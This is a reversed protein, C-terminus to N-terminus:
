RREPQDDIRLPARPTWVDRQRGNRPSARHISAEGPLRRGADYSRGARATEATRPISPGAERHAARGSLIAVVAAVVLAAAVLVRPNLSEGGLSWGLFVAVVPNVFAYTSVAALSRRRILWAYAGFAIVSGFGILYGLAALSGPSIADVRLDRLEGALSGAALLLAGGALLYSGSTVALSTRRPRRQAMATGVSWSLAALILVAAGLPDVPEGQWLTGPGRGVLVVIGLTGAALGTVTRKTFVAAGEISAQILTMWLPITAIFLAAVGSPVRGEAWSLGGHAGLFLLAGILGAAKWDALRPPEGGRWRGWMYLLGGAALSRIGMMTLPPLTAIAFKIALYTSGWILYIAAFAAAVAPTIRRTM